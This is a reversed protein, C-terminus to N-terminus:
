DITVTDGARTFRRGVRGAHGASAASVSGTASDSDADHRGHVTITEPPTSGLFFITLTLTAGGHAETGVSGQQTTSAYFGVQTGHHSVRGREHHWRGGADDVNTVVDPQLTLEM